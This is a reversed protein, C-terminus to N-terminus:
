EDETILCIRKELPKMIYRFPFRYTIEARGHSPFILVQDTLLERRHEKEGLKLIFRLNNAPIEFNLKGNRTVGEIGIKDGATIKEAIMEPFASNYFKPDLRKMQLGEYEVNGKMRLTNMPCQAPSVPQPYDNWRQVPYKVNELNALPKEEAEEASRYFGKGYPNEGHPIELGDWETAGGYANSLGLSMEKFFRPRDAVLGEGTNKWFRDGVVEIEHKIKRNVTVRVRMRDVPRGNLATAKGFVPLDVGGRRYILDSELPGFETMRPQASLPLFPTKVPVLRENEIRFSKRVIVAAAFNEGGPATRFLLASCNTKNVLEM